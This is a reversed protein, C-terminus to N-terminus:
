SAEEAACNRAIFESHSPLRAAAAACDSAILRIQEAAYDPEARDALAHAGQPLFRQGILLSAWSGLQFLHGGDVALHGRAKWLSLTEALSDPIAMNKTYRWFESDERETLHYHAIIFDRVQEWELRTRSNYQQRLAADM